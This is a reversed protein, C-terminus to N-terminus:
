LQCRAAGYCPRGHRGAGARPGGATAREACSAVGADVWGARARGALSAPPSGLSTACVADSRSVSAAPRVLAPVGAAGDDPCVRSQSRHPVATASSSQHRLMTQPREGSQHRAGQDQTRTGRGRRGPGCRGARTAATSTSRGTGTGPRLAAAGVQLDRVDLGALEVDRHDEDARVVVAAPALGVVLAELVEALVHGVGVDRVDLEHGLAGVRLLDEAAEDRLPKSKMMPVDNPYMSGMAATASSNGSM